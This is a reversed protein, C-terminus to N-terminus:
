IKLHSNGPNVNLIRNYLVNLIDIISLSGGTHGAKAHFIYKLINKRFETSKVKLYM